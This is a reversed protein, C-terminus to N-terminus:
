KGDEQPPTLSQIEKLYDDLADLRKSWLERYQAIWVDVESLGELRAEYFRERGDQRIVVLGCETLVKVHKYIAARSMSFKGAVSNANLSKETIMGLIQRRTPDAIAQFVDRRMFEHLKITAYNRSVKQNRLNIKPTAPPFIRCGQPDACV